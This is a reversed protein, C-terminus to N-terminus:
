TNSHQSRLYLCRTATLLLKAKQKENKCKNTDKCRKRVHMQTNNLDFNHAVHALVSLARLHLNLYQLTERRRVRRWPLMAAHLQQVLELQPTLAHTHTHTHTHTDKFTRKQRSITQRKASAPCTHILKSRNPSDSNSKMRLFLYRPKSTLLSERTRARTCADSVCMNASQARGRCPREVRCLSRCTGVKEDEQDLQARKRERKQGEEEEEHWTGSVHAREVAHICLNSSMWVSRFGSFMKNRWLLVLRAASPLRM